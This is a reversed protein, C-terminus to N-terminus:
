KSNIYNHNIYVCCYSVFPRGASADEDVVIKEGPRTRLVPFFNEEIEEKEVKEYKAVADAKM